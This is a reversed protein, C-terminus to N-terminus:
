GPSRIPKLFILWKDRHKIAFVSKSIKEQENYFSKFRPPYKNRSPRQNEKILREIYRKSWGKGLFQSAEELTSTYDNFFNLVKNATDKEIFVTSTKGLGEIKYERLYGESIMERVTNKNVKFQKIFKSVSILQIDDVPGIMEPFYIELLNYTGDNFGVEREKDDDIKYGHAMAQSKAIFRERPGLDKGIGTHLIDLYLLPKFDNRKIQYKKMHHRKRYERAPLIGEKIWRRITKSSMNILRALENLSYEKEGKLILDIRETVIKQREIAQEIEIFNKANDKKRKM